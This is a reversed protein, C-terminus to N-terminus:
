NKRRCFIKRQPHNLLSHNSNHSLAIYFNSWLQLYKTLTCFYEFLCKLIWLFIGKAPSYLYLRSRSYRQVFVRFTIKTQEFTSVIHNTTGFGRNASTVNERGHLTKWHKATPNDWSDAFNDKNLGKSSFTCKNSCSNEFSFAKRGFYFM